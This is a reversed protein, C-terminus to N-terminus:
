ISHVTPRYLVAHRFNVAVRESGIFDSRQQPLDAAIMVGKMGPLAGVASTDISKIHAHAHPSRLLKGCLMGGLKLDADDLAPDTM